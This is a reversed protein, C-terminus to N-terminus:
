WVGPLLRYRVGAVVVVRREQVKVSHVFGTIIVSWVRSLFAPFLTEFLGMNDYFIWAAQATRRVQGTALL